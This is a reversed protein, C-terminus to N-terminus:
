NTFSVRKTEGGALVLDVEPFILSSSDTNLDRCTDDRSDNSLHLLM